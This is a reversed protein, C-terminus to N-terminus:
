CGHSLMVIADALAEASRLAEERSNGAAGMEILLAGTSLDQNFRTPRLSLPRTIGPISRELTAQLKLALSLNDEWQPHTQGSADTGMVLMMRAYDVGDVTVATRLQNNIDGSADRHLDLVLRISPYQALWQEAAERSRSYSGNYSPHDHLTRDHIVSIGNATLIEALRDGVSVMNYDTDLTRFAASEEYAEGEAPTYSETAHTHLILVTPESGTLDWDLPQTLLKEVDPRYSCSYTIELSAADEATFVPIDPIDPETAIVPAASEGAFETNEAFSPSFRVNRGTELYILFAGTNPELLWNIVPQLIGNSFLRLALAFVIAAAGARLTSGHQDM